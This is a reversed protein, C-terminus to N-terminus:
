GIRVPVILGMFDAPNVVFKLLINGTLFISIYFVAFQNNLRNLFLFVSFNGVIGSTNVCLALMIVFVSLEFGSDFNGFSFSEKGCEPHHRKVLAVVSLPRLATFDVDHFNQSVLRVGIVTGNMETLRVVLMLSGICKFVAAIKGFFVMYERNFPLRANHFPINVAVLVILGAVPEGLNVALFLLRIGCREILREM